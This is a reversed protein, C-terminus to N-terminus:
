PSSRRERNTKMLYGCHKIKRLASNEKEVRSVCGKM